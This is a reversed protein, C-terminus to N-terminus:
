IGPRTWAPSVVGCPSNCARLAMDNKYTYKEGDSPTCRSSNVVDVDSMFMGLFYLLVIILLLPFCLLLGIRSVYGITTNEDSSVIHMMLYVCRRDSM